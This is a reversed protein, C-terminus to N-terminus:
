AAAKRNTRRLGLLAVQSYIATKSVGAFLRVCARIGGDPYAERLLRLQHTTWHHYARKM